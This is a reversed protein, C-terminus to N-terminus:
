CVVVLWSLNSCPLIRTGIGCALAEAHHVMRMDPPWDSTRHLHAPTRRGLAHGAGRTRLRNRLAEPLQWRALLGSWAGTGPGCGARLPTCIVGCCTCMKGVMPVVRIIRSIDEESLRSLAPQLLTFSNRSDCSLMCAYIDMALCPISPRYNTEKSMIVCPQYGTIIVVTNFCHIHM